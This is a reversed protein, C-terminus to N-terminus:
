GSARIADMVSPSIVRGQAKAFSSLMTTSGRFGLAESKFCLVWPSGVFDASFASFLGCCGNTIGGRAWTHFKRHSWGFVSPPSLKTAPAVGDQVTMRKESYKLPGNTHLYAGNREFAFGPLREGM